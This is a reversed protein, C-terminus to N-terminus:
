GIMVLWTIADFYLVIYGRDCALFRLFHGFYCWTCKSVTMHLHPLIRSVDCTNVWPWMCCFLHIFKYRGYCSCSDKDLFLGWLVYKVPVCCLLLQAQGTQYAAIGQWVLVWLRAPSALLCSVTFHQASMCSVRSWDCSAGEPQARIWSLLILWPPKHCLSLNVRQCSNGSSDRANACLYACPILAHNPAHAPNDPM